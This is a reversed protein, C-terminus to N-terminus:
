RLLEKVTHRLTGRDENIRELIGLFSQSSPIVLLTDETEELLGLPGEPKLVPRKSKVKFRHSQM